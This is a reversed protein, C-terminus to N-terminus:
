HLRIMGAHRDYLHFLAQTQQSKSQSSLDTFIKVLAEISGPVPTQNKQDLTKM